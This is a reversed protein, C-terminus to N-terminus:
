SRKGRRDIEQRANWKTDDDMDSKFAIWTLYDYPVESLKAGKHKGFSITTILRPLKTWEVLQEVSAKLLMARLNWATVYTDPGARHSPGCLSLDPEIVGKDLLWYFLSFNTHSRLDPWLRYAAKYTCIWDAPETLGGMFLKEFACNHAVFVAPAPAGPVGRWTGGIVELPDFLPEGKIDDPSIHHVARTDYPVVSNTSGFLRSRPRGIDVVGKDFTVDTIGAEIVQAAPPEYGTTEFDVVRLLM